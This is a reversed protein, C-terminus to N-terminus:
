WEERYQQYGATPQTYMEWLVSAPDFTFASWHSDRTLVAGLCTERNEWGGGDGFAVNYILAFDRSLEHFNYTAWGGGFNQPTQMDTGFTVELLHQTDDPSEPVPFTIEQWICSCYNVPVGDHPNPDNGEGRAILVDYEPWNYLKLGTIYNSPDNVGGINLSSYTYFRVTRQPM